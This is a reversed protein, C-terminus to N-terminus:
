SKWRASRLERTQTQMVLQGRPHTHPAFGRRGILHSAARTGAPWRCTWDIQRRVRSSAEIMRHIEIGGRLSAEADTLITLHATRLLGITLHTVEVIWVVM